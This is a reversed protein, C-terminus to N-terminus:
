QFEELVGLADLTAILEVKPVRWDIKSTRIISVPIKAAAKTEIFDHVMASPIEIRFDQRSNCWHQDDVCDMKVNLYQFSVPRLKPGIFAPEARNWPGTPETSTVETPLLMTVREGMFYVKAPADHRKEVFVWIAVGSQTSYTNSYKPIAVDISSAVRVGPMLDRVEVRNRIEDYPPAARAPAVASAVALSCVAVIMVLKM